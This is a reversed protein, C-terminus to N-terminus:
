VASSEPLYSPFTVPFSEPRAGHHNQYRWFTAQAHLFWVQFLGGLVQGDREHRSKFWQCGEIAHLHEIKSLHQDQALGPEFALPSHFCGSYNIGQQQMLEM